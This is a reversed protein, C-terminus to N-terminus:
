RRFTQAHFRMHKGNVSGSKDERHLTSSKAGAIHEDDDDDGNNSNNNFAISDLCITHYIFIFLSIGDRLLHIAHEKEERLPEIRTAMSEILLSTTFQISDCRIGKAFKNNDHM